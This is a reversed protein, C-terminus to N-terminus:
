SNSYLRKEGSYSLSDLYPIFQHYRFGNNRFFNYIIKGNQATLKNVVCLINFEIEYKKLM